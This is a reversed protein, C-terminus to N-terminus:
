VDFVKSRGILKKKTDTDTANGAKADDIDKQAFATQQLKIVSDVTDRLGVMGVDKEWEAKLKLWRALIKPYDESMVSEMELIATAEDLQDKLLDVLKRHEQIETSTTALNTLHSRKAIFTNELLELRKQKFEHQHSTAQRKSCKTMIRLEEMTKPIVGNEDGFLWVQLMEEKTAESESVFQGSNHTSITKKSM